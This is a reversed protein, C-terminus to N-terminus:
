VSTAPANSSTDTCSLAALWQLIRLHRHASGPGFSDPMQIKLLVQIRKGAQAILITKM